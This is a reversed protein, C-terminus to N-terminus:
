VYFCDRTDDQGIVKRRARRRALRDSRPLISFGRSGDSVLRQGLRTGARFGEHWGM